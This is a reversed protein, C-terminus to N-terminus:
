KEWRRTASDNHLMTDAMERQISSSIRKVTVDAGSYAKASNLSGNLERQAKAIMANTKADNVTTKATSATQAQAGLANVVAEKIVSAIPTLDPKKWKFHFDPEVPGLTSGMKDPAASYKPEMNGTVTALVESYAKLLTTLIKDVEDVKTPSDKAKNVADGASTKAKETSAVGSEQASSLRSNFAADATGKLSKFRAASQESAALQTLVHEGTKSALSEQAFDNPVLAADKTPAGYNASSIYSVTNTDNHSNLNVKYMRRFIFEADFTAKSVDARGLSMAGNGLFRVDEFVFYPELGPAINWENVLVPSFNRLKVIMDLRAKSSLKAGWASDSWAAAVLSGLQIPIFGTTPLEKTPDILGYKSSAYFKGSLKMLTDYIFLYQDAEITLTQKHAMETHPVAKTVSTWLIPIDVTKSKMEPIQIGATRVALMSSGLLNTMVEDETHEEEVLSDLPKGKKDVQILILDYQNKYFDPGSQVLADVAHNVGTPVTKGPYSADSLMSGVLTKWIKYSIGITDNASVGLDTIQSLQQAINELMKDYNQWSLQVTTPEVAESTHASLLEAKASDVFATKQAASLRFERDQIPFTNAIDKNQINEFFNEMARTGNFTLFNEDYEQLAQDIFDTVTETLTTLIIDKAGAALKDGFNSDSGSDSVSSAFGPPLGTFPLANPGMNDLDVSAPSSSVSAPKLGEQIVGVLNGALQVRPSDSFFHDLDKVTLDEIFTYNGDADVAPTPDAVTIEDNEVEPRPDTVESPENQVVPKAKIDLPKEQDMIPIPFFGDMTENEITVKKATPTEDEEPFTPLVLPLALKGDEVSALVEPINSRDQDLTVLVRPVESKPDDLSVSTLTPTVQVENEVKVSVSQPVQIDVLDRTLDEIKPGPELALFEDKIFVPSVSVSDDIKEDLSVDLAPVDIKEQGLGEPVPIPADLKEVPIAASFDLELQPDKELVPVPVPPKDSDQNLSASVQAKVSAEQEFSALLRKKTYDRMRRKQEAVTAIDQNQKAIDNKAKELVASISTDLETEEFVM